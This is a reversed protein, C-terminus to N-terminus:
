FVLVRGYLVVYLMHLSLVEITLYATPLLANAMIHRVEWIRYTFFSIFSDNGQMFTTAALVTDKLSAIELMRASEEIAKEIDAAIKRAIYIQM